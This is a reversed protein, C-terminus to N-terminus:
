SLAAVLSHNGLRVAIDRATEGEFFRVGDWWDCVKTIAEHSSTFDKHHLIARCLQAQGKAAAMHLATADAKGPWAKLNVVEFDQRELIALGVEELGRFSAEHLVSANEWGHVDNLGPLRRRKLLELALTENGGTIAALLAYAPPPPDQRVMTLQATCPESPLGLEDFYASLQKAEDVLETHGLLLVQEELPVRLKEAIAGLVKKIVWCGDATLTCLTGGLGLVELELPAM